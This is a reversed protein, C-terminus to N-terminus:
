FVVLLYLLAVLLPLAGARAKTLPQGFGVGLREQSMSGSAASSQTATSAAATASGSGSDGPVLPADATATSLSASSSAASSSTSTSTPSASTEAMTSNGSDKVGYGIRSNDYDFVTYVNKLFVAGVLWQKEGFTQRGIINSQCAGGGLSRGVYDEASINYVVNSFSLQLPQMTNCPVTFVEGNQASQPILKHLAAADDGPLLIYSTGTDIIATRDTFQASTGDFAADDVPIEWFGRDNDITSTWELDGDYRDPNPAGFNLEGDDLDDSSRSLHIGYLKAPILSAEALADLLTGNTVDNDTRDARGLGLIGDMPYSSFEDSAFDALGFTLDVSFTSVHIKDSAITGNVNGTGYAISFTNSTTQVFQKAATLPPPFPPSM